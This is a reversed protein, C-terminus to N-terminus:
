CVEGESATGRSPSPGPCGRSFSASRPPSASKAASRGHAISCAANSLVVPRTSNPERVFPRPRSPLEM